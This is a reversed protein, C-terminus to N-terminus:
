CMSYYLNDIEIKNFLTKVMKSLVHCSQITILPNTVTFCMSSRLFNGCSDNWKQLEGLRILLTLKLHMSESTSIWWMRHKIKTTSFGTWVGAVTALVREGPYTSREIEKVRNSRHLHKSTSYTKRMNLNAKSVKCPDTYGKM